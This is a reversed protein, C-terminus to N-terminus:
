LVCQGIGGQVARCVGMRGQHTCGNNGTQIFVCGAQVERYCGNAVETIQGSVFSANVITDDNNNGHNGGRRCNNGRNRRKGRRDNDRCEGSINDNDDNDNGFIVNISFGTYSTQSVTPFAVPSCMTSVGVATPIGIGRCGCFAPAGGIMEYGPPIGGGVGISGGQYGSNQYAGDMGGGEGFWSGDDMGGQGGQGFGDQGPFQPYQQTQGQGQGYQDQYQGGQQQGNGLNPQQYGAQSAQNQSQQCQPDAPNKQCYEYNLQQSGANVEPKVASNPSSASQGCGSLTVVGALACMMAIIRM